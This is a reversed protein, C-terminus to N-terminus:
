EGGLLIEALEAIALEMTTQAAAQAEALEALALQTLTLEDLPQETSLVKKKSIQEIAM